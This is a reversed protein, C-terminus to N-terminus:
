LVEELQIDFTLDRGALPHNADLTVNSDTIEVVRLSIVAGDERQFQLDQGVLLHFDAPFEDRAVELMLAERHPGYADDASLKVTKTDGINMGVIAEEFGPIVQNSGITFQLSDQGISSGFITGDDLKGTYHVKVIDGNKAQVM